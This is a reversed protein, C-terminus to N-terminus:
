RPYLLEYEIVRFENPIDTCLWVAGPSGELRGREVFRKKMRTPDFEEKHFVYHKRLRAEAEDDDKTVLSVLMGDEGTWFDCVEGEFSDKYLKNMYRSSM